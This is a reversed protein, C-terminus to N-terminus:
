EGGTLELLAEELDDDLDALTDCRLDFERVARAQAETLEVDAPTADGGAPADALNDIM